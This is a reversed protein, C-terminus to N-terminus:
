KNKFVMFQTQFFPEPLISRYLETYIGAIEEAEYDRGTPVELIQYDVGFVRARVGTLRYGNRLYFKMRRERLNRMEEDTAADPDEVEEVICDAGQFCDALQRLFVTGWGEGRHEASIALYDFLYSNDKRVFCAYGLIAKRDTLVYCDYIGKEWAQVIASLPRLEDPAFDEKMRTRYISEIEAIDALKKTQIMKRRKKDPLQM